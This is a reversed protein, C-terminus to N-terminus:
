KKQRKFLIVSDKVGGGFGKTAVPIEGLPGVIEWGDDGLKNLASELDKDNLRARLTKYEWKVIAVEKTTPSQGADAHWQGAVTVFAIITALALVAAARTTKFM